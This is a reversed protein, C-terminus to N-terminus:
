SMCMATNLIVHCCSCYMTAADRVSSEIDNKVFCVFACVLVVVQLVYFSM